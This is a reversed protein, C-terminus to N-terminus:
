KAKRRVLEDVVAEIRRIESPLVTLTNGHLINGITPPACGLAKAVDIVLLGNSKIKRLYEGRREWAIRSGQKRRPERVPLDKITDRCAEWSAKTAARQSTIPKPATFGTVLPFDQQGHERLWRDASFGACWPRAAM